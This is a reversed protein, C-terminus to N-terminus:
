KENYWKNVLSIHWKAESCWLYMQSIALLKLVLFFSFLFFTSSLGNKTQMVSPITFNADRCNSKMLTHWCYLYICLCLINDNGHSDWVLFQILNIMSFNFTNKIILISIEQLKKKKKLHKFTTQYKGAHTFTISQLSYITKLICTMNKVCM